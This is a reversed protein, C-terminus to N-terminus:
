YKGSKIDHILNSLPKITITWINGVTLTEDNYLIIRSIIGLSALSYIIRISLVNSRIM